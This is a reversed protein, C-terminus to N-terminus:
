PAPRLADVVRAEAEAIIGPLEADDLGCAHRYPAFREHRLLAALDDRLADERAPLDHQLTESLELVTALFDGAERRLARDFAPRTASSVGNCWAFPELDAHEDNLVATLDATMQTDSLSEHLPGSGECAIRYILPRGGAEERLREVRTRCADLLEQESEL